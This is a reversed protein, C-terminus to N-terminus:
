KLHVCGLVRWNLRRMSVSAGAIAVFHCSSFQSDMSKMLVSLVSYINGYFNENPYKLAGNIGWNLLEKEKIELLELKNSMQPVDGM